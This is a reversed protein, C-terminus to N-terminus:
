LNSYHRIVVRENSDVFVAYPQSREVVNERHKPFLDTPLDNSRKVADAYAVGHFNVAVEAGARLADIVIKEEETVFMQMHNVGNLMTM